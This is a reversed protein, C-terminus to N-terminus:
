RGFRGARQFGGATDGSAGRQEAVLGEQHDVAVDPAVPNDRRAQARQCVLRCWREDPADQRSSERRVVGAAVEQRSPACRWRTLRARGSKQGVGAGADEGAKKASTGALATMFIRGSSSAAIACADDGAFSM